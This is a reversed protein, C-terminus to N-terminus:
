FHWEMSILQGRPKRQYNPVGSLHLCHRNATTTEGTGPVFDPTSFASSLQPSFPPPSAPIFQSLSPRPHSAGHQQSVKSNIIPMNDFSNVVLPWRQLAKRINEGPGWVRMSCSPLIASYISYSSPLQSSQRCVRPRRNGLQMVRALWAELGWNRCRYCPLIVGRWLTTLIAHSSAHWTAPM